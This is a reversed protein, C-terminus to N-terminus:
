IFFIHELLLFLAFVLLVVLFFHDCDVYNGDRRIFFMFFFQDGILFHELEM